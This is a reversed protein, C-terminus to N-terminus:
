INAGVLMTILALVLLLIGIGSAARIRKGLRSMESKFTPSSSPNTSTSTQAAAQVLKRSSPIVVVYVLVLAVLGLLAGIQIGTLGSGTPGTSPAIQVSYVYLILGFIIAMVSSGGVFRIYRPVTARVFDTGSAESMKRLAPSIVSIFLMAGGMWAVIFIVHLVLLVLFILDTM